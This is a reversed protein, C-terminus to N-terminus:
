LKRIRKRLLGLGILASGFLVMTAPEPTSSASTYNYNVTVSEGALTTNQSSGNGSSITTSVLALAGVDLTITGGGAQEFDGIDAVPLLGSTNTASGSLVAPDGDVGDNSQGPTLSFPNEDDLALLANGATTFGYYTGDPGEVGLRVSETVASLSEGTGGQNAPTATLILSEVDAAGFVQITVSNLTGLTTDFLGLNITQPCSTCNVGGNITFPTQSSAGWNTLSTPNNSGDLGYSSTFSITTASAIGVATVAIVSGFLIRRLTKM